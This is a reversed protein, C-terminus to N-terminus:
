IEIEISELYPGLLDTSSFSRLGSIADQNLEHIIEIYFGDVQYLLYSCSSDNRDLLLVGKDFLIEYQEFEELARFAHLNM